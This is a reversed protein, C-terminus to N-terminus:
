IEGKLIRFFADKELDTLKALIGSVRACDAAKTRYLAAQADHEDAQRQHRTARDTLTETLTREQETIPM